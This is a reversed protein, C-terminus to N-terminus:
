NSVKKFNMEEPIDVNFILEEDELKVAWLCGNCSDPGKYGFTVWERFVVETKHSRVSLRWKGENIKAPQNEKKYYHFYTSDSKLDVYHDAEPEYTNVYRGTIDEPKKVDKCTALLLGMILVLM